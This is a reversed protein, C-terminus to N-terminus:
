HLALSIAMATVCCLLLHTTVKATGRVHLQEAGLNTKLYGFFREVAGRMKYIKKWNKSDRFPLSVNRPDKEQSLRLSYGYASDACWASGQSCDKKGCIHPCRFKACGRRKEAGWYVMPYGMSCVPWHKENMGAPPTKENRRNLPIIAQSGLDNVAQYLKTVDYGKDMCYYDPQFPMREMLPIAQESDATNAPTVTYAMPLGSEADISLHLKYGYWDYPRGKSDKKHGWAAHSGDEPRKQYHEYSEISSSDIAVIRKHIVNTTLGKSVLSRFFVDMAEATTIKAYFRSFTAISPTRGILNFGCVFRLLINEQLQTVLASLTPIQLIVKAILALLLAQQSYGNPGFASIKPLAALAPTLDIKSFILELRSKPQFSMLENFSFLPNQQIYM